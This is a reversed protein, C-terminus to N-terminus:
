HNVYVTMADKLIVTPINDPGASKGQKLNQIYKMVTNENVQRFQFITEEICTDLHYLPDDGPKNDIRSALRPGVNVFHSNLANAIQKSDSVTKNGDKVQMITTSNLGKDLVKNITKWMNKPNNKNEKILSQYHLRRFFRISNTVKNRLSKYSNLLKPNKISNKKARDREEMLRKIEPTIWPAPQNRVKKRRISAHTNLLGDFIEHFKDVMLNPSESFPSLAVEWNVEKLDNIFKMKDYNRLSRTELIKPKKSRIRWANVKRIAYIMYHDVMGAGVNLIRPSVTDELKSDESEFPAPKSIAYCLDGKEDLKQNIFGEAELRTLMAEVEDSSLGHRATLLTAIRKKDVKKKAKKKIEQIVNSLIQKEDKMQAAM